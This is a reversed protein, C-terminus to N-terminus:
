GPRQLAHNRRTKARPDRAGHYRGTRLRRQLRTQGAGARHKAERWLGLPRRNKNCGGCPDGAREQLEGSRGGRQNPVGSGAADGGRRAGSRRNPDCEDRRTRPHAQRARTDIDWIGPIGRSLLFTDLDEESRFNSPEQCWDHVIYAKLTPAEGELDAPIVGYNGILPFTQVVMQGYDSPDTLTELYGTMATTFVIEGTAQKAAGFPRGKFVRGNELILYRAHDM